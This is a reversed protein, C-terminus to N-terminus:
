SCSRAASCGNECAVPCAKVTLDTEDYYELSSFAPIDPLYLLSHFGEDSAILIQYIFGTMTNTVNANMSAAFRVISDSDMTIAMNIDDLQLIQNEVYISTKSLVTNRLVSIKIWTNYRAENAMYPSDYNAIIGSSGDYVTLRFISTSILHLSMIDGVSNRHSWIIYEDHSVDLAEFCVYLGISYYKLPGTSNQDTWFNAATM